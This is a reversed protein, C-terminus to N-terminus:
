RPHRYEYKDVIYNKFNKVVNMQDILLSVLPQMKKLWKSMLNNNYIYPSLSSDLIQDEYEVHLNQDDHFHKINFIEPLNKRRYLM